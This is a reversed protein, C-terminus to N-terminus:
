SKLMVPLLSRRTRGVGRRNRQFARMIVTNDCDHPTQKADVFTTAVATSALHATRIRAGAVRPDARVLLKDHM